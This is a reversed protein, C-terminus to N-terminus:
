DLAFAFYGPREASETLSRYMAFPSAGPGRFVATQFGLAACIGPAANPDGLLEYVTLRGADEACCFLCNEGRYFRAYSGLFRLLAGEQLISGPPLLAKRAAAYDKYSLATLPIPDGAAAQWRRIGGFPTYGLKEYFAFLETKAPVLVVGCYGLQLLIRETHTMLRRCLGQGRHEQATAVGYIYALRKGQWRCDFWYLAALVRDGERVCRCRYLSFGKEFFGDIFADTDGFAEKWLAKLGPIHEDRPFDTIM